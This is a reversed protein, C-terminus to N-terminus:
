QRSTPDLLDRLTDGLVNLCLVTIVIALGPYLIVHQVSRIYLRGTSMMLGWESTPSQVGIGLFSLSAATLIAMGASLSGQVIIPGLINPLIHLQMVRREGAGVSRAALVFDRTKVQLTSGRVLRVFTPISYITVAAIVSNLGSGLITIVVLAVMLGPFALTVDVLRMIVEDVLGGYNGAILGFPTGIAIAVLVSVMAISLSVRSGWIIRSLEDRGLEDAGLWHAASPPALRDRLETANPDYPALVNATLAVIVVFLLILTVLLAVPRHSLRRVFGAAVPKAPLMLLDKALVVESQM